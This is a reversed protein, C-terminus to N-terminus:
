SPRKVKFIVGIGNLLGVVVVVVVVAACWTLIKTGFFVNLGVGWPMYFMPFSVLCSFLLGNSGQVHRGLSLFAKIAFCYLLVAILSILLIGLFGMSVYFEAVGGLSLVWDIKGNFIRTTVETDFSSTEFFYDALFSKMGLIKHVFILVNEGPYDYIANVRDIKLSAAFAPLQDARMILLDFITLSLLEDINGGSRIVNIAVLLLPTSLIFILIYKRYSAYSNFILYGIIFIGFLGYKSGAFILAVYPLLVYFIGVLKLVLSNKNVLFYGVAISLISFCEGVFFNFVNLTPNDVSRGERSERIVDLSTVMFVREYYFYLCLVGVIFVVFSNLRFIRPIGRRFPNVKPFLFRGFVAIFLLFFFVVVQSELYDEINFDYIDNLFLERRFPSIVWYYVCWLGWPIALLLADRPCLKSRMAISLALILFFSAIAIVNSILNM